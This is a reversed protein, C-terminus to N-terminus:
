FMTIIVTSGDYAVILTLNEGELDEGKICYKGNGQDEASKASDACHIIDQFRVGRQKMRLRAHQTLEFRGGRLALIIIEIETAM